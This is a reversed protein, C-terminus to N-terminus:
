ARGGQQMMLQYAMQANQTQITTFDKSTMMQQYAIQALQQKTQSPEIEPINITPEEYNPNVTIENNQLLYRSPKFNEIFNDPRIGKFEQAGDIGGVDAYELIENKDNIKILM